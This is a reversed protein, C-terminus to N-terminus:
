KVLRVADIPVQKKLWTKQKKVLWMTHLSIEDYLRQETTKNKLWALTERYGIAMTASASLEGYRNRLGEVEEILGDDIMQHARDRVRQILIDDPVDMMVTFKDYNEFVCQQRQFDDQMEMLTKGSALCRKLASMVRRPNNMDIEPLAGHNLSILKDVIGSLGKEEFMEDVERAIDNSVAVSDVVPHFFSKLYFGSGGCVVINKKRSLIDNIADRACSIYQAVDFREVPSIIDVCHHRVDNLMDYSPKATGINMDRYVLLSDCSIIEADIKKALEIAYSSKGSATCGTIVYLFCKKDM